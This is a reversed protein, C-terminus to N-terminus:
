IGDTLNDRAELETREAEYTYTMDQNEADLQLSQLNTWDRDMAGFFCDLNPQELGLSSSLVPAPSVRALRNGGYNPFAHPGYPISTPIQPQLMGFQAPSNQMLLPQGGHRNIKPGQIQRQATNALSPSPLIPTGPMTFQTTTQGSSSSNELSPADNLETHVSYARLALTKLRSKMLQEQGPVFQINGSTTAHDLFKQFLNAFDQTYPLAPIPKIGPTTREAWPHPPHTIGPYITEWINFWKEVESAKQRKKGGSRDLLTWQEMSIGTNMELSGLSCPEPQQRHRRLETLSEEVAKGKGSFNKNCRECQILLHKRKIHEKLRQITKYGSECVRYQDGTFPNSCFRSPDSKNFPCAYRGRLEGSTSGDDHNEPSGNGEGDDREEGDGDDSDRRRSGSLRRRKRSKSHKQDTSSSMYPQQSGEGSKPSNQYQIIGRQWGGIRREERHIQDKHLDMILWAAFELDEVNTLVATEIRDPEGGWEDDDQEEDSEFDEDELDSGGDEVISLDVNNTRISPPTSSPMFPIHSVDSRGDESGFQRGCQTAIQPETDPFFHEKFSSPSAVSCAASCHDWLSEVTSPTDSRISSTGARHLANKLLRIDHNIGPATEAALNKEASEALSGSARQHRSLSYEM